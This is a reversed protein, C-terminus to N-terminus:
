LAVILSMLIDSPHLPIEAEVETAIETM